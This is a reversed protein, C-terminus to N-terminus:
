GLWGSFEEAVIKRCTELVEDPLSEYPSLLRLPMDLGALRVFLKDYAGDMRSHRLMVQLLLGVKDM